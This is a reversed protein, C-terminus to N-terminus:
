FLSAVATATAESTSSAPSSGAVEQTGSLREGLQAIAGLEYDRAWHISLKQNNKSPTLRLHVCRRGAVLGIPLLYCRDLVQCYAGVADIQAATYKTRVFGNASRRNTDLNVCVVGEELRCWKCQVRLLRPRMDLVLDYREGEALPRLVGLGLKTAQAAFATEAIAGKQSPTLM